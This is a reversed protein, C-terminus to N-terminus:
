PSRNALPSASAIVVPTPSPSASPSPALEPQVVPPQSQAIFQPGPPPPLPPLVATQGEMAFYGDPYRFKERSLEVLQVDDGIQTREYAKDVFSADAILTAINFADRVGPIYLVCSLLLLHLVISGGLLKSIIPWRAEKNVEFNAFLES